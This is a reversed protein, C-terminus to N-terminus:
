GADEENKQCAGLMALMLDPPRAGSLRAEPYGEGGLTWWGDEDPEGGEGADAAISGVHDMLRDATWGGSFAEYFANECAAAVPEADGAAIARRAVMVPFRRGASDMSPVLAGATWGAAERRAFRWPPAVDFRAAFDEGLGDRAALMSASLWTDLADREAAPLGRVVFDGHTPLKGFLFGCPMGLTASLTVPGDPM